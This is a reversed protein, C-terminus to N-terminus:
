GGIYKYALLIEVDFGVAKTAQNLNAESLDLGSFSCTVKIASSSPWCDTVSINNPDYSPFSFLGGFGSRVYVDNSGYKGVADDNLYCYANALPSVIKLDTTIEIM